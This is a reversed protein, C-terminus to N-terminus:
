FRNTHATSVSDCEMLMNAADVNHRKKARKFWYIAKEVSKEVGDGDYYLLGLFYQAEDCNDEALPLFLEYAKKFERNEYAEIALNIV